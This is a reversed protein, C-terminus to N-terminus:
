RESMGDSRRELGSGSRQAGTQNQSRIQLVADITSCHEVNDRVAYQERM